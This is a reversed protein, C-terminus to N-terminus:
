CATIAATSQRIPIPKGSKALRLEAPHRDGSLFSHDKQLRNVCYKQSAAGKASLGGQELQVGKAAARCSIVHRERM